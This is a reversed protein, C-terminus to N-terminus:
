EIILQFEQQGLRKVFEAVMAKSQTIGKQPQTMKLTPITGPKFTECTKGLAICGLVQAAFGKQTDGMVNASHILIHTRGNVGQVHYCPGHSPSLGWKVRYTGKPICSISNQNNRDPLEGTLCTFGDDTTLVGFTGHDSSEKRKIRVTKM